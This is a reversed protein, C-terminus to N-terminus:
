VVGGGPTTVAVTVAGAAHAATTATVQTDSNVTVGTAATGGFTVATAGTLGTGTITVVTGGTTSGSTPALSTVTPPPPTPILGGDSVIWRYTDTLTAHAAAAASSYQPGGGFSVDMQLSSLSAWGNLLADYNAISMGTSSGLMVNATTVKSVNWGGINQNFASDGAFMYWMNAVNGTNWGGINQNFLAAGNFMGSMDTVNGTNWGSIDGNFAAAEAFMSAMTTVQGTNWNNGSTNINQNFASDGGFMLDMTTVRHTDWSSIDQNFARDILFMRSMNTVNGTNWGGINQNFATAGNFMGSMNTVGSTDWGSIDANFVSADCFMCSLNTTGTLDPADTATINMHATGTFYGGTNGLHVKGWQGIGLLKTADGLNSSSPSSFSWGTMGGPTNETLTVTYTGASAYTHTVEAQDYATIHSPASSDGWNATFDYTGGDAPSLLPLTIQQDSSM